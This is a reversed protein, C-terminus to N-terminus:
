INLHGDGQVSMRIWLAEEGHIGKSGGSIAGMAYGAYGARWEVGSWEMVSLQVWCQQLLMYEATIWQMVIYKTTNLQVAYGISM